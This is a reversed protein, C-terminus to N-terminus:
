KVTLYHGQIPQAVVTSAATVFDKTVPLPMDLFGAPSKRYAAVETTPGPPTKPNPNPNPTLTLTLTLLYNQM